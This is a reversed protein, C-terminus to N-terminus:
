RNDKGYYIVKLKYFFQLNEICSKDIVVSGIEIFYQLMFLVVVLYKCIGYFGKGVLCECDSNLIDGISKDM